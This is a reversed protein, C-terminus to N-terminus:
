AGYCLILNNNPNSEFFKIKLVAQFLMEIMELLKIRYFFQFYNGKVLNKLVTEYNKRM